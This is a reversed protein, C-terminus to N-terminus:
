KRHGLVETDSSTQYSATSVLFVEVTHGWTGVPVPPGQAVPSHSGM